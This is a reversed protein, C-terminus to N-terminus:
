FSEQRVIVSIMGKFILLGGIIALIWFPNGPLGLGDYVSLIKAGFESPKDDGGFQSGHVLFLEISAYGFIMLGMAFSPSKQFWYFFNM